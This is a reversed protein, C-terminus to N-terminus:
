YAVVNQFNPCNKQAWQIYKTTCETKMRDPGPMCDITEGDVPCTYGSLPPQTGKTCVGGADPFNAKYQCTFGSACKVGAIGGCFSNEGGKQPVALTPCPTFECNPGSRGVASGDPCIKAEATCAQQSPTITTPSVVQDLAKQYNAGFFFMVTPLTVFLILALMKSFPTVTIM